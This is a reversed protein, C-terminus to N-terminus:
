DQIIEYLEELIMENMMDISKQLEIFGVTSLITLDFIALDKLFQRVASNLVKYGALMFKATNKNDNLITDAADVITKAQQQEKDLEFDYADELFTDEDADTSFDREFWHQTEHWLIQSNDYKFNDYAEDWEDADKITRHKYLIDPIVSAIQYINNKIATEIESYSEPELNLLKDGLYDSLFSKAAPAILDSSCM